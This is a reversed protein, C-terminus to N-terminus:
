KTTIIKEKPRHKSTVCEDIVNKFYDSEDLGDGGGLQFFHYAMIGVDISVGEKSSDLLLSLFVETQSPCLPFTRPHVTEEHLNLISKSDLLSISHGFFKLGIDRTALVKLMGECKKSSSAQIQSKEEATPQHEKERPIM